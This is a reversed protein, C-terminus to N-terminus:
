SILNLFIKEHVNNITLFYALMGRDYLFYSSAQNAKLHKNSKITKKM